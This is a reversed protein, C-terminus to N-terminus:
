HRLINALIVTKNINDIREIIDMMSEFFSEQNMKDIERIIGDLLRTINLRSAHGSLGTINMGDANRKM